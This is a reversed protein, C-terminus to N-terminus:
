DVTSEIWEGDENRVWKKNSGDITMTTGAGHDVFELLSPSFWYDTDINEFYVNLAFDETLEGIVNVGTVSPTTEGYVSGELKAVGLELTEASERVRVNDGFSIQSSNMSVGNNPDLMEDSQACSALLFALILYILLLKM